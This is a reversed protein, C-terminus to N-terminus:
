AQGPAEAGERGRLLAPLLTIDAALCGVMEVAILLGLNRIFTFDSLGLVGFGLAVIVTTYSLAPLNLRLAGGLAERSGTGAERAEHYSTVVHMTDDVAIGLALSGIMVTGADLAIGALGMFGYVAAVPVFNPVLATAALSPRRFVLLLILGIVVGALGLGRLQGFTVEDEARSFEFMTGTARATFDPPGQERWWRNAEDAAALLAGSRNDDVRLVINAADRSETVLDDISEVSELLLLYQEALARSGPLPLSADDLFGGHIQRLPAAVSVAKGVEDRTELHAALRDLAAVVEPETVPRGAQSEIVVNVPSIGSLAERIRDYDDRPLTGPPFWSTADTAVDLRALGLVLPLVALAWVILVARRRRTALGLLVDCGPGQLWAAFRAQGAPLPRLALCAPLLTLTAALTALVGVAGFGGVDRVADIRVTAISAFGLATTLGSLAVPLSVRRLARSLGEHEREGAAAALVHMAYAAGLALVISPLIMTLLTISAGVAGMFGVMVITGVAGVALALLAAYASRFVVVLLGGILVLTLPVFAVLEERTQTNIETRFVPVGSVRTRSADVEARVREVLELFGTSTGAELLLNIAFVRGDESVLNRPAVLDALVAEGLRSRGAATPPVGGALPADLVLEAGGRVRILPVTDISDVRRVQPLGELAQSLRAVEALAEAEWPERGEVAVVLVEEGGFLSQSHRHFAYAPDGRDLLSDTSTDIGVGLAGVVALALVGAWIALTRRPRTLTAVITRELLRRRPEVHEPLAGGQQAM